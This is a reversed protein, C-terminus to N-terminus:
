GRVFSKAWFKGSKGWFWAIVDDRLRLRARPLRGGEGDGDQLLDLEVELGRLRQHQRGGTLEGLLYVGACVLLFWYFVLLFWYVGTCVLIRWYLGTYALM